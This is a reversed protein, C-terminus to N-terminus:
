HREGCDCPSGAELGPFLNAAPVAPCIRRRRALWSLYAVVGPGPRRHRDGTCPLGACPRKWACRATWRRLRALLVSVVCLPRSRVALSSAATLMWRPAMAATVATGPGALTATEGRAFGAAWRQRVEGSRRSAPHGRELARGSPRRTAAPAKQWAGPASPSYCAVCRRRASGCPSTRTVPHVPARPIARGPVSVLRAVARSLAASEAGGGTAQAGRHPLVRKSGTAAFLETARGRPGPARRM